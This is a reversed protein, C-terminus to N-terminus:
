SLRRVATLMPSRREGSGSPAVPGNHRAKELIILSV